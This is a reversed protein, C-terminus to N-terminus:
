VNMSPKKYTAWCSILGKVKAYRASVRVLQAGQDPGSLANLRM